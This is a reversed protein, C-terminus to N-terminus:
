QVAYPHIRCGPPRCSCVHWDYSPWTKNQFQATATKALVVSELPKKWLQYVTWLKRHFVPLVTMEARITQYIMAWAYMAKLTNWLFDIFKTVQATQNYTPLKLFQDTHHLFYHITPESAEFCVCVFINKMIETCQSAVFQDGFVWIRKPGLPSRRGQVGWCPMAEAGWRPRPSGQVGAMTAWYEGLM